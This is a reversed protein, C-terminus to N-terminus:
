LGPYPQGWKDQFVVGEATRARAQRLPGDALRDAPDRLVPRGAAPRLDCRGGQRLRHATDDADHRPRARPDGLVHEAGRRLDVLRRHPGPERRSRPLRRDVGAGRPLPRDPIRGRRAPAQLAGPDSGPPPSSSAYRPGVTEDYLRKYYVQVQKKIEPDKVVLFRWRQTNGGSPAYQGAQLIRNILEDPVPDPKLRRMARMTSMAEWINDTPERNPGRDAAEPMPTRRAKRNFMLKTRCCPNLSAFGAPRARGLPAGSGPTAGDSYLPADWLLRSAEIGSVDTFFGNAPM